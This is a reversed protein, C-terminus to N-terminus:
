VKLYILEERKPMNQDKVADTWWAAWYNRLM